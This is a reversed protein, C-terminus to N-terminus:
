RVARLMPVLKYKRRHTELLGDLYSRWAEAKGAALYIPKARALWKAAVDYNQAKGADMIREAQLQCQGIAWDPYADKAAEIVNILSSHHYHSKAVEAMAEPLMKEHLYIEAAESVYNAQSLWALLQTKQTPWSEGGIQEAALYDELSCSCYFTFAAVQNALQTQKEKVATERVWRALMVEQWSATARAIHHAALDFVATKEGKEYLVQLLSLVEDALVLYQKAEAVAEETRGLRALMNAYLRIQGEAEALWLYAQWKQQRALVRLRAQALADAFWPSEGEWAGQNTIEGKEIVRLLPPYHWGQELAALAIKISTSNAVQDDWKRLRKQWAEKSQSSLDQSLLAEALVEGVGELCESATDSFIDEHYDDLKNVQAFWEALAVELVALAGAADNADLCAVAQEVFPDLAEGYDPYDDSDYWEDYYRSRSPAYQAMQGRIAQQIAETNINKPVVATEGGVGVGAQLQAVATEFAQVWGPQGGVVTLIVERLQEADLDALLTALLPREALSERDRIYALLVAVIHKCDGGRDYPCTCITQAITNGSFHVEVLYPEYQSGVVEATLVEGRLVLNEVYGGELYDEGREFSQGIARGRVERETILPREEM